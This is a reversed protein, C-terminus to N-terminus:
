KKEEARCLMNGTCEDDACDIKGDKDRDDVSNDCIEGLPNYTSGIRLNYYSGVPELYRQVNAYGEGKKISEDFLFVPLATLKLDSYLKQAEADEFDYVTVKLGKFIQQIQPVISLASQCDTCKKDNILIMSVTEPDKYTCKASNSGANECVGIKDASGQCDADSGCAPLTACEPHNDLNACIARMFSIADRAGNYPAGGIFMTPSGQANVAQSRKISASHLEKAENGEYCAKIKTVDLGESKACAEWNNPIAGANANMCVIMDMYKKPEHKAACLQVLNGLVENQGHLSKFTGDGNDTAIFDLSFDVSDGFKDLAPKIADEVQTGYPCQSMVYFEVKAKKGTSTGTSAGPAKVASLSEAEKLASLSSSLASKVEQKTEKNLLTNIAKEANSYESFNFGNTLVSVVLLVALIATALKWVGSDDSHTSSHSHQEESDKKHIPRSHKSM